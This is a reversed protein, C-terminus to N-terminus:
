TNIYYFGDDPMKGGIAASPLIGLYQEISQKADKARILRVNCNAIVNSNLVTM